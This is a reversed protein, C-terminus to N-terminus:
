SYLNISQTHSLCESFFSICIIRLMHLVTHVETQVKLEELVQIIDRFLHGVEEIASRCPFVRLPLSRRYFDSTKRKVSSQSCTQQLQNVGFSTNLIVGASNIAEICHKCLVCVTKLPTEGSYKGAFVQLILKRGSNICRHDNRSCHVIRM